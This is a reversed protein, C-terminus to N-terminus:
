ARRGEALFVAVDKEVRTGTFFDPNVGAHLEVPNWFMFEKFDAESILGDEVLEHAEVVVDGVDTVDWHGVDSGFMARVKAGYPNVKTNFAWAVSRDDAECGIYFRPIFLDKIEAKDKIGVAFFDDREPLPPFPRDYFSRAEALHQHTFEDAYEELYGMLAPLDLKEPDVYEM